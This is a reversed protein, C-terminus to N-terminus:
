PFTRWVGRVRGIVKLRNLDEGEITMDPYEPNDCALIIQRLLLKVRRVLSRSGIQLAYIGGDALKNDSFDVLLECRGDLTPKMAEGHVSFIGCHNKDIGLEDMLERSFLLPPTTTSKEPQLSESPPIDALLRDPIFNTNEM